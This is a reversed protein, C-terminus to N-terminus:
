RYDDAEGWTCGAWADQRRVLLDGIIGTHGSLGVQAPDAALPDGDAAQGGGSGHGEQGALADRVDHVAPGAQLHQYGLVQGGFAPYEAAIVDRVGRHAVQAAGLRGPQPRGGGAEGGPHEVLLGAGADQDV